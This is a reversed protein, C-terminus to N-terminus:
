VAVEEVERFIEEIERTSKALKLFKVFNPKKLAAMVKQLAKLYVENKSPPAIILFILTVPQGDVASFDLPTSSRGFAGIVNKIGDLKAHPVGVGGGIGTSGIKERQVIADVISPVIFKEGDYTKRAAQVLEQIAGKKDTAKLVPIIAKKSIIDTLKL